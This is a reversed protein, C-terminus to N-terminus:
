AAVARHFLAQRLRDRPRTLYSYRDKRRKIVRPESRGPRSPNVTLTPTPEDPQRYRLADLADVFSIRDAAVGQRRAADLMMLRVLNYVLVFAWLEKLVGDPSKCRLVDLGMTRKLHLLNTEAQWRRHYLRALEAKPYKRSDTLTTLLTVTRTRFGPQRVRYRLERLLLTGPLSAFTQEDMWVPRQKPKRYEVLQDEKGLRKLQRSAPRGRRYRQYSRPRIGRGAKFDVIVRQHLRFLGHIQQMMLLALHAYSCFARDGVLLDGAELSPHLAAADHLDHRHCRGPLLDVLLGTAADFLVLLHMVPFGCGRKVRGPQGFAQQLAPTDPMSVGSGDILLVRHGLWRGFDQTHRRATGILEGAVSGLVDLPLRGRAKCYASVSFSLGSLHRLRRCACNGHLVQLVLLYLTTVPDLVRQRWRHQAAACARQVLRPDLHTRPDRKFRAVASAISLTM